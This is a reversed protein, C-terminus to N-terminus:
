SPHRVTRFSRGSGSGRWRWGGQPRTSLTLSARRMEPSLPAYAADRDDSLVLRVQGEGPIELPTEFDQFEFSM